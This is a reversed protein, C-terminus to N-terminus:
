QSNFVTFKIDDLSNYDKSTVKWRRGYLDLKMEQILKGYKKSQNVTDEGTFCKLFDSLAVQVKRNGILFITQVKISLETEIEKTNSVKAKALFTLFDIYQNEKIKRLEVKKEYIKGYTFTFCSAVAGIVAVIITALQATLLSSNEM